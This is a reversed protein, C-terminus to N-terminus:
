AGGVQVPKLLEALATRQQDTLPPWADLIKEIYQQTRQTKLERKLEVLQPHDPPLDQSLRAIRARKAQWTDAM